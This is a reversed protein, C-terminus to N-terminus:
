GHRVGSADPDGEPSTGPNANAADRPLGDSERRAASGLRLASDAAPLHHERRTLSSLAEHPAAAPAAGLLAEFGEAHGSAGRPASAPAFLHLVSLAPEDGLLDGEGLADVRAILADMADPTALLDHLSEDPGAPHVLAAFADPAAGSGAGTRGAQPRWPAESGMAAPDVLTAHYRRHLEGLVADSSHADAAGAADPASGAHRAPDTNGAAAPADALADHIAFPWAGTAAFTAGADGAQAMARADSSGISAPLAPWEEVGSPAVFGLRLLGVQVEDGSQLPVRRGPPLAEGNVACTRAVLAHELEFPGVPAAHGPPTGRAILRLAALHTHDEDAHANADAKAGSDEDLQPAFRAVDAGSDEIRRWRWLGGTEAGDRLAHARLAVAPAEGAPEGPLAPVAAVGAGSM